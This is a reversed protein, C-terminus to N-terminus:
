AQSIVFVTVHRLLFLRFVRKKEVLSGIQKTSGQVFRSWCTDMADFFRLRRGEILRPSKVDDCCSLQRFRPQFYVFERKFNSSLAAPVMISEAEFDIIGDPGPWIQAYRANRWCVEVSATLSERTELTCM